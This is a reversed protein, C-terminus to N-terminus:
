IRGEGSRRRPDDVGGTNSTSRPEILVIHTEEDAAPKHEVGRPIVCLEGPGLELTRGRLEIRLRGSVVWFLEDEAEHRHWVFEGEVKALRVVQDGIEAVIRPDWREEIRRFKDELRVVEIV